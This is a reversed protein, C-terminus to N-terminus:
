ILLLQGLIQVLGQKLFGERCVTLIRGVKGRSYLGSFQRLIRYQEQTLLKEYCVLFAHAQAVSLKLKAQVQRYSRLRKLVFGVSNVRTAGVVNNGHQRYLLTPEELCLIRGFSCATLAIWWDHMAIGPDSLNLLDNLAQNWLMTCGTVNNQVLLHPLDKVQPDLSRYTFFSEGLVSLTQDVVSLDTHVLIPVSPTTENEKMLRLSKEIKTDLWVDDQDAFMFYRFSYRQTVWQLIAAFNKQASGGTLGPDRILIIKKEAAYQQLIGATQDASGDDRIFLVWNQYTQKLISDIQQKLYHEGNYTAMCIAVTDDNILMPIQTM